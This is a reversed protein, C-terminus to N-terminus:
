GEYKIGIKVRSFWNSVEWISNKIYYVKNSEKENSPKCKENLENTLM